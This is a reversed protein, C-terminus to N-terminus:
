RGIADGEADIAKKKEHKVLYMKEDARRYFEDVTDNRDFRWTTYGISLGIKVPEDSKANWHIANRLIKAILSDVAQLSEAPYVICFEDGGYRSLFAQSNKCSAKLIESVRVLITDGYYHGYVDNVRKFDDVDMMILALLGPHSPDRTERQIYRTLERRNNIGTLPDTSIQRNLSDIYMMMISIATFVWILAIGYYFTQIIGAIAPLVVFLALGYYRRQEEKWSARRAARLAIVSAYILYAYAVAAFVYFGDNRAYVNAEDITFVSGTFLNM